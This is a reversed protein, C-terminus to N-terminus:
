DGKEELAEIKPILVYGCVIVSVAILVLVYTMVPMGGVVIHQLPNFLAIGLIVALVNAFSAIITIKQSTKM